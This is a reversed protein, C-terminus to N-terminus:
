EDQLDYSCSHYNYIYTMYYLTKKDLDHERVKNIDPSLKLDKFSKRFVGSPRFIRVGKLAVTLYYLPEPRNLLDEFKTIVKSAYEVLLTDVPHDSDFRGQKTLELSLGSSSALQDSAVEVSGSVQKALLRDLGCLKLHVIYSGSLLDFGDCIESWMDSLTKHQLQDEYVRVRSGDSLYDIHYKAHYTKGSASRVLPLYGAGTVAIFHLHPHFWLQGDVYKYTVELCTDFGLFMSDGSSLKLRFLRKQLIIWASGLDRIAQYLDEPLIDVVTLTGFVFRSKPNKRAILRICSDLNNFNTRFQMESCLPCFKNKCFFSKYFERRGSNDSAFIVVEACDRVKESYSGMVSSYSLLKEYASSIILSKKKLRNFLSIDLPKLM